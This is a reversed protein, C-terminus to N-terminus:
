QMGLYHQAPSPRVCMPIQMKYLVSASGCLHSLVDLFVADPLPNWKWISFM